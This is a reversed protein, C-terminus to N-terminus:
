LSDIFEAVNDWTWNKVPASGMEAPKTTYGTEIWIGLLPVGEAIATSIEWLQGEASATDSSILAIVGDSRRIRTTVKDKWGSVYAENVSLDIWEFPSDTNLRQGVFLNRTSEDEMAFAIFVTKMEAVPIGGILALM